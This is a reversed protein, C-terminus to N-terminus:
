GSSQDRGPSVKLEAHGLAHHLSICHRSVEQSNRDRRRLKGLNLVLTHSQANPVCSAPCLRRGHFAISVSGHGAGVEEVESTVQMGRM